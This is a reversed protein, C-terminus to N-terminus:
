AAVLACASAHSGNVGNAAPVTYSVVSETQNKEERYANGCVGGPAAQHPAADAISAGVSGMEDGKAPSGDVVGVPRVQGRGGGSREPSLGSWGACFGSWTGDYKHAPHKSRLASLSPLGSAVLGSTSEELCALRYTSGQPGRTVCVLELEELRHLHVKLQTDGWHTRERVWRRTFRFLDADCSEQASAERVQACLLRWLRATQPPLDDLSRGLAHSALFTALEIDDLDVEIFRGHGDQRIQKQYQHALAVANVLSLYKVQDRRTRTQHSAFTLDQAYPNVVDLPELLRQANRWLDLRSATERRSVMGQRTLNQRQRRHIAETQERSEDVSLVLCRNQLEPDIDPSTTTMALAVPGETRYEKTVLQGSEADKTTSAMSLVGDSQLLKLSYSARRAGEEEAICLIKHRLNQGGMYFLAQGSMASYRVVDEEPMTRLVGDLLSSKGAASTSQILLGLPSELRRSTLSLWCLLKNVTEGVMGCSELDSLLQLLYGPERLVALAASRDSETMSVVPVPPPHRSEEVQARLRDELLVLLRGLDRKVVEGEIGLEISAVRVFAERAKALYLDLTDLHFHEGRTVRLNLRLSELSRVRGLGLIRWHRDGMRWLLADGDSVLESAPKPPDKFGREDQPPPLAATEFPSPSDQGSAPPEAALLSPAKPNPTSKGRGEGDARRSPLLAGEEPRVANRTMDDEKGGYLREGMWAAHDLAERLTGAPDKSGVALSNVDEGRPFRMRLVELGESALRSALESAAIDGAEDADFAIVVRLFGSETLFQWLDSGVGRVGYATTVNRFGWRWLTLADLIAECLILTGGAQRAAELASAGNFVGRMQGSLYLHNPTGARLGTTVKRGYMGMVHRQGRCAWAGPVLDGLIPVVLSGCLHEHGSERYVGLRQLQSRLESGRRIQKDPIELGLTRDAIGLQFTQILERDWLGRRELYARAADSDSLRGHYHEMVAWLVDQDTSERPAGFRMAPLASPDISDPPSPERSPFSVAAPVLERLAAVAEGLGLNRTQMLWDVVSGGKGCGFCHWLGKRPTVRFSPTSEEHFPCLGLWDAGARSLQVGHSRVLGLLDASRKLHGLEASRGDM